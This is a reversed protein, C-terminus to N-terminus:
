TFIERRFNTLQQSFRNLDPNVVDERFDAETARESRRSIFRFCSADLAHGSGRLYEGLYDLTSPRESSIFKNGLDNRNNLRCLGSLFSHIRPISHFHHSRITNNTMARLVTWSAMISGKSTSENLQQVQFTVHQCTGEM